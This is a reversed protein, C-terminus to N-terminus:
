GRMVVVEGILKFENQKQEDETLNSFNIVEITNLIASMGYDACDFDQWYVTKDKPLKKLKSIAEGVTM